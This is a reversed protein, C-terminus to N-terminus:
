LVPPRSHHQRRNVAGPSPGPQRISVGGGRLDFCVRYAAFVSIGILGDLAAVGDLSIPVLEIPGLDLDGLVFKRTLYADDAVPLNREAVLKDQIFSAGRAGTDWILRLPGIDTTVTSIWFGDADFTLEATRPGCVQTVDAEQYLEFRKNPYDVVVPSFQRLFDRGIVADFPAPGGFVGDARQKREYGTVDVFAHGGLTLAPVTFTRGSFKAGGGDTRTETGEVYRVDLQALAQSTIGLTKYGGTDIHARLTVEGIVLKAINNGDVLEIPIVIPESAANTSMAAPALLVLVAIRSMVADM